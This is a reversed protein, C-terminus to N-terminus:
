SRMKIRTPYQVANRGTPPVVFEDVGEYNRLFRQSAIDGDIIGIGGAMFCEVM